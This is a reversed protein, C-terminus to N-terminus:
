TIQAGLREIGRRSVIRPEAHLARQGTLKSPLPDFNHQASLLVQVGPVVLRPAASGCHRALDKMSWYQERQGTGM